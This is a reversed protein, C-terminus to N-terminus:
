TIEEFMITGAVNSTATRCTVALTFTTTTNAFSNRELQYKFLEADSFNLSGGGQVTSTIYGTNLEEGGSITATTNSNYQVASDTAVNAWVAGGITAGKIIKYQYEAAKLPLLDIQKPIVVADPTDPNLKISVVPYYTGATTLEIGSVVNTSVVKPRGTLTYGGESIVTSCIQKYTSNSATTGTNELEMRLPLCATQMYAGKPSTTLNSHHFSHCHILEGNLVFGMRVSGVGLWEIDMFLIQPNDLDLTLLSPGTGDLKDINWDAQDVAIDQVVGSVKTRKVFSVGSTTAASRELFFGNETGFYGIRQRLNTKAPNMVFTTMIQLSKGPQYSFVKKTERYVYAGSTTTVTCDISSTNSNFLYTGGANNAANVKGNDRYRHYSDFLTFPTSTRARGFGDVSMGSPNAPGVLNGYQDALMVVEYITKGDALYQHTDKRFQAM